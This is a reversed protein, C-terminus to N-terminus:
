FYHQYKDPLTFQGILTFFYGHLYITHYKNRFYKNFPLYSAEFINKQQKQETKLHNIYIHQILM